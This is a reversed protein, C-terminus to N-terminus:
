APNSLALRHDVTLVIQRDCLLRVNQADATATDVVQWTRHRRSIELDHTTEVPQMQLKRKSARPHQSAQQSGLPELDATPWTL